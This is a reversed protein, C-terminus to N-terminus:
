VGLRKRLIATPLRESLRRPKISNLTEILGFSGIIPNRRRDLSV